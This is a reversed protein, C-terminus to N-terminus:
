LHHNKNRYFTYVEGSKISELILERRNKILIEFINEGEPSIIRKGSITGLIPSSSDLYFYQTAEGVQEDNITLNMTGVAEAPVIIKSSNQFFVNIEETGSYSDYYTYVTNNKSCSYLFISILVGLFFLTRKM